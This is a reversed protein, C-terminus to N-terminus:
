LRGAMAKAVVKVGVARMLGPLLAHAEPDGAQLQQAVLAMLERWNERPEGPRPTRQKRGKENVRDTAAKVCADMYDDYDQGFQVVDGNMTLNAADTFVRGLADTARLEVRIDYNLDEHRANLVLTRGASRYMLKIAHGPIATGNPAPLPSEVTGDFDLASMGNGGIVVLDSSRELPAGNISWAYEIPEFLWDSDVTLTNRDDQILEVFDFDQPQCTPGQVTTSGPVANVPIPDDNTRIHIAPTEVPTVIGGGVRDGFLVFGEPSVWLQAWTVGGLGFVPQTQGPTAPVTFHAHVGLTKALNLRMFDLFPPTLALDLFEIAALGVECLFAIRLKFSLDPQPPVPTFVINSANLSPFILQHITGGDISWCTDDGDFEGDVEIWADRFTYNLRTITVHPVSLSDATPLSAIITDDSIAFTVSRTADVTATLNDLNGNGLTACFTQADLNRNRSFIAFIKAYGADPYVDVDVNREADILKDVEINARVAFDPIAAIVATPPANLTAALPRAVIFTGDVLLIRVDLTGGLFAAEPANSLRIVGGQLRLILTCLNTGSELSLDLSKVLLDVTNLRRPPLGMPPGQISLRFPTVLSKGQVTVNAQILDLLKDRRLQGVFSFGALASM